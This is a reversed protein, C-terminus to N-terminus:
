SKCGGNSCGVCSGNCSAGGCKSVNLINAFHTDTALEKFDSTKIEDEKKEEFELKISKTKM